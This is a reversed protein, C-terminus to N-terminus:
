WISFRPWISIPCLNYYLVYRQFWIQYKVPISVMFKTAQWVNLFENIEENWDWIKCYSPASYYYKFIKLLSFILVFSLDFYLILILKINQLKTKCFFNVRKLVLIAGSESKLKKLKRIIKYYKQEFTRNLHEKKNIEKRSKKLVVKIM